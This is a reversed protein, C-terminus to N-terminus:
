GRLPREGEGTCTFFHTAFASRSGSSFIVLCDASFNQRLLGRSFLVKGGFQITMEGAGAQRPVAAYRSKRSRQTVRCGRTRNERLSFRMFDVLAVLRLLFDPTAVPGPKGHFHLSRRDEEGAEDDRAVSGDTEDVKPDAIGTLFVVESGPM